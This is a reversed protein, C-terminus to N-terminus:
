IRMRTAMAYIERLRRWYWEESFESRAREVGRRGLRRMQQSDSWLHGMCEALGASDGPEFLLGSEGEVVLEPLGGIRSAIVPLGHSMAESIVLPCGEFCLSPVVLFRATRYQEAVAAESLQGLFTVNQPASEELAGKLPGDGVLRVPIGPTMGAARVLVDAGKEPSLRGVFLAFEGTAPDVPQDQRAAMNRLVVVREGEFGAAVIRARSFESLAVVVNVNDLFHRAKRAATARLAYALSEMPDHRCNQLVCHYERGGVCRECVAGRYIHDTKPCTLFHNHVTMVVPVGARQLAVLVAPSFLPYLNHVHAVDPKFEEVVDLVERAAAPNYIASFFAQAKKSLSRDLGRSTRMLLRADGGHGEVLDAIQLVVTEEGGFLSRYQNYIQLLRM